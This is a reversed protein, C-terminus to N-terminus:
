SESQLILVVNQNEAISNAIADKDIFIANESLSEQFHNELYSRFLVNEICLVLKQNAAENM